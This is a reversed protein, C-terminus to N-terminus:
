SQFVGLENLFYRVLYLLEKIKQNRIMVKLVLDTYITPIYVYQFYIRSLNSLSMWLEWFTQPHKVGFLISISNADKITQEILSLRVLVEDIDGGSTFFCYQIYYM